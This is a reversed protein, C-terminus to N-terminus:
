RSRVRQKLIEYAHAADLSDSLKIQRQESWGADQSLRYLIRGTDTWAVLADEGTDSLFVRLGNAGMAPVPRSSAVRFHLLHAPAPNTAPDASEIREIISKADGNRDRLGRGSLRAGIDIINARAGEALTTLDSGRDATIQDRVQDAIYRIVDDHFATGRAIIFDRSKEAMSSRDSPYLARGIDIINARAGEALQSLEEPLVDIEVVSLTRTEASSFGVLLTRADRGSQLVPTQLLTDPPAFSSGSSQRGVLDSLNYVPAWGLYTGEDLIVPTYLIDANGNGAPNPEEWVIHVITRRRTVPNGSGDNVLFTDRNIALQPSSKSSFPNGTIQIPPGWHAGDFSALMLVSSVYNIRSAWVLFLTNSDDEFLVAPSTEIDSGTTYPVLLRQPAVGPRILDVALVPNGPDTAHEKPFLEKYTGAKALYVEGSAGLAATGDQAIAPAALSGALLISAIISTHKM